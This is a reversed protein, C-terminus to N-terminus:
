KGTRVVFANKFLIQDNKESSFGRTTTVSVDSADSFIHSLFCEDMVSFSAAGGFESVVM